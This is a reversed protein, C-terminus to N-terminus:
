TLRFLDPRSYHGVSDCAMKAQRVEDLDAEAVLTTEGNAPGACGSHCCPRNKDDSSRRKNRIM